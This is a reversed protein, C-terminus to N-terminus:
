ELTLFGQEVVFKRAFPMWKGLCESFNVETTQLGSMPVFAPDSGGAKYATTSRKRAEDLVKRLWPETKANSVWTATLIMEFHRELEGYVYAVFWFWSRPLREKKLMLNYVLHERWMTMEEEPMALEEIEPDLPELWPPLQCSAWIPAYYAKEWQTLMVSKITGDAEIVVIFLSMQMSKHQLRFVSESLITRLVLERERFKNREKGDKFSKKTVGTVHPPLFHGGCFESMHEQLLQNLSMVRTIEQPSMEYTHFEKFRHRFADQNPEGNPHFMGSYLLTYAKRLHNLNTSPVQQRAFSDHQQMASSSSAGSLHPQSTQPQMKTPPPIHIPACLIDAVKDLVDKKQAMNLKPWVTDLPFGTSEVDEVIVANYSKPDSEVSSGYIKPAAWDLVNRVAQTKSLLMERAKAEKPYIIAVVSKPVKGPYKGRVEISFILWPMADRYFKSTFKPVLMVDGRGSQIKPTLSAQVTRVIVNSIHSFDLDKPDFVLSTM